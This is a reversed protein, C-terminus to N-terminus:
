ILPEKSMVKFFAKLNDITKIKKDKLVPNGNEISWDYEFLYSQDPLSLNKHWQYELKRISEKYMWILGEIWSSYARLYARGWFSFDEKEKLRTVTLNMDASLLRHFGTLAQIPTNSSNSM